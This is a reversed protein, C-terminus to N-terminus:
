LEGQERENGADNRDGSAVLRVAEIYEALRAITAADPTEFLTRLPLEIGFTDRIRSVLQVALLSHGGISFFNERVGISRVGL